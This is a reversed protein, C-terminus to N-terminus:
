TAETAKRAPARPRNMLASKTRRGRTLYWVDFVIFALAVLALIWGWEHHAEITESAQTIKIDPGLTDVPERTLDSEALSALNVPIWRQGPQPKEWLVRYLGVRAVEPVVVLGNKVSVDFQAEEGEPPQVKAESVTAPLSVRLPDGAIAPGSVGSSRHRRAQEMLNRMFVVFSARLPWNTEGVDFGLLTITRSSTSIDAAIVGQDTRILEQRTTDPKLLKAKSIYVGELSSLWRMRVDGEALSTITPQEITAGVVTGYCDGDPPNLILLDSGPPQEPM